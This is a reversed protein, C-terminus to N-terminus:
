SKLLRLYDVEALIKIGLKQAKELKSGAEEGALVYSTKKSVSGSVRGGQQVIEEAIEDRPRSLTGTIVWTTGKIKSDNPAVPKPESTLRLGAGRLKEIMERNAPEHFFQAISAGVVEGVDYIRQLEEPTASM